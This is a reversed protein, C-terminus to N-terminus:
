LLGRLEDDTLERGFSCGLIFQGAPYEIAYVVKVPLLTQLGREPRSLQLDLVTGPAFGLNVVLGAGGASLDRVEVLVPTTESDRILLGHLGVPVHRPRRRREAGPQQPSTPNSM